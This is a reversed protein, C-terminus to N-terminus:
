FRYKPAPRDDDPLLLREAEAQIAKDYSELAVGIKAYARKARAVENKDDCELIVNKGVIDKGILKM